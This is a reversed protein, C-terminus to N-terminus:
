AAMRGAVADVLGALQSAGVGGAEAAASHAAVRGVPSLAYALAEDLATTSLQDTALVPWGWARAQASVKAGGSVPDVAVVPVGNKLALVLGHLRTTVVVDVRRIVSELQGPTAALRWDRPDLRTDLDLRAMDRSGLWRGLVGSVDDHRRRDGYEQQGHTLFVAVVPVAEPVPRAALDRLGGEGRVDRAIVTSFGTVAPDGPDLVSVGVAIRICDAFREHLERIPAGHLPGCAFVLHTYGGPDADDLCLGGPPCMVASWATEADIGADTLAEAVARMSLVDGATAEGHLVSSWGVILVRATDAAM